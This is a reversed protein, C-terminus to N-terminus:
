SKLTKELINVFKIKGTFNLKCPVQIGDGDSLNVPKGTIVVECFSYEDARLFNFITKACSVSKGLPLHGIIRNNKKKVCLAYKDGPNDTRKRYSM